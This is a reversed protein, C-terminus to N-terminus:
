AAISNRLLYKFLVKTEWYLSVFVYAGITSLIIGVLSGYYASIVTGVLNFLSIFLPRTKDYDWLGLAEKYTGCASRINNIYFLLVIAVVIGFDFMMSTNGLSKISWIEIFPQYLVILCTSCFSVIVANVFFIRKFLKYNDEVGEKHIYNGLGAVISQFIITVFGQIATCIYMYNNYRGCITIGLFASICITDISGQIVSGIRHVVLASVKKKITSKQELNLNGECIYQPYMKKAIIGITINSILTSIPIIIAYAYYNHFVFLVVIQVLYMLINIISHVNSQIDNRQHAILLASKYAFFLYGIVTNALYISFLIYLNIDAPYGGDILHPLFPMVILGALLVVIAIVRYIKRYANLLAKITTQDDDAIPKYMSFIIATTFGLEALNLVNLVAGFLGSLGIYQEGLKMLIVTRIVFPFLISIIKSIFGAVVSKVANKTKKIIM